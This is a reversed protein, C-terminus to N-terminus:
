FDEPLKAADALSKAEHAMADAAKGQAEALAKIMRRLRWNSVDELGAKSAATLIARLEGIDSVTMDFTVKADDTNTFRYDMAKEM